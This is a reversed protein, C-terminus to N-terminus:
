REASTGKAAEDRKAVDAAKRAAALEAELSEIRQQIIQSEKM